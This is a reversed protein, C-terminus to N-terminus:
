QNNSIAATTDSSWNNMDWSCLKEM